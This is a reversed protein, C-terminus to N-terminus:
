IRPHTNSLFQIAGDPVNIVSLAPTKIETQRIDADTASGARLTLFPVLNDDGLSPLVGAGLAAGEGDALCRRGRQM